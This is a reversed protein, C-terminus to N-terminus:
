KETKTVAQEHEFPVQEQDHLGHSVVGAERDRANMLALLELGREPSGREARARFSAYADFEALAVTAWERFMSNVSIDRMDALNRLREAMDDPLRITLTAM